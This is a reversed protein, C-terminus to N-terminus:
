GCRRVRATSNPAVNFTLPPWAPRISDIDGHYIDLDLATDISMARLERVTEAYAARQEARRRITQILETM